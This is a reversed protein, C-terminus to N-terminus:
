EQTPTIQALTFRYVSFIFCLNYMNSMKTLPSYNGSLQPSQRITFGLLSLYEKLKDVMLTVQRFHM